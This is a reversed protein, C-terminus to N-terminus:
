SGARNILALMRGVTASAYSVERPTDANPPAADAARLTETLGSRNTYIPADVTFGDAKPYSGFLQRYILVSDLLVLDKGPHMGDAYFWALGLDVSRAHRLKESVEIYSIGGATAADSEEVILRSSANPAAQYTGLLVVQLGNKRGLAALAKIAQRSRMCPEPAFSCILDGGREQLVLTTYRHEALARVVSGDAVRESLTAGGKVIMDSAVPHGNAAALASFVAPVNGVYILSNGVFLVRDARREPHTSGCSACLLLSTLALAAFKSM